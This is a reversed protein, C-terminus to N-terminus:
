KNEYTIFETGELSKDIGYKQENITVLTYFYNKNDNVNFIQNKSWVCIDGDYKTNLMKIKM